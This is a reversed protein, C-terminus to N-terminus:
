SEFISDAGKLNPASVTYIFSEIAEQSVFIPVWPTVADNRIDSSSDKLDFVSTEHKM